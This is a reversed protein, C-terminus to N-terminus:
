GYRRCSRRRRVAGHRLDLEVVTADPPIQHRGLLALDGFREVLEAAVMAVVQEVLVHPAEVRRHRLEHDPVVVFHEVVPIRGLHEGPLTRVGLAADRQEGRAALRANMSYVGICARDRQDRAHRGPRAPEPREDLDEPEVHAGIAPRVRRVTLGRQDSSDASRPPGCTSHNFRRSCADVAVHFIMALSMGSPSTTGSPGSNSATALPSAPGGSPRSSSIAASRVNM